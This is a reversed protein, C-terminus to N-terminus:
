LIVFNQRHIIEKNEDLCVIHYYGKNVNSIEGKNSLSITLKNGDSSILEVEATGEPFNIEAFSSSPNPFISRRSASGENADLTSTITKCSIFDSGCIDSNCDIVDNYNTNGYLVHSRLSYISKSVKEMSEALPEYIEHDGSYLGKNADNGEKDIYRFWHFGVNGKNRLLKLMWNEYWDARDQQTPVSWGAGDENSLGSDQGKTYFETIMFPKGSSELWMDMVDEEPEFRSYYNVTIVDMYRGMVEFLEPIYKAGGHVRTGILMHDPDVARFAASVVSFYKEAVHEQYETEDEDTLDNLSYSQGYKASMWNDAEIYQANDSSLTLSISLQDKHFPLENDIFYGLVWPDNLYKALEEIALNECFSVFTPEFVPLVDLAYVEKIDDETNKFNVLVNFRPCYAFNEISEDSWSGMTNFGMDVLDNPLSIGGGEEVSNLGASYFMNGSPDIIHWTNECDKETHFFGTENKKAGLWGGYVNREEVIDTEKELLNADFFGKETEISIDEFFSFLPIDFKKSDYFLIQPRSGEILSENSAFSIPSVIASTTFLKFAIETSNNLMESEVYETVDFFSTDGSRYGGYLFVDTETPPNDWTSSEDFDPNAGILSINGEDGKTKVLKLIIQESTSPFNDTSFKIWASRESSESFSHKIRIIDEDWFSEDESSSQIYTDGSSYISALQGHMCLSTFLYFTLFLVKGKNLMYTHKM